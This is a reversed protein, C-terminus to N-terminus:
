TRRLPRCYLPEAPQVITSPETTACVNMGEYNNWDVDFSDVFMVAIIYSVEADREESSKKTSRFLVCEISILELVVFCVSHSSLAKTMTWDRINLIIYWELVMRNKLYPKFLNMATASLKQVWPIILAIKVLNVDAFLSTNEIGTALLRKAACLLLTIVIYM